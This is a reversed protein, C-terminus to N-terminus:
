YQGSNLMSATKGISRDHCEDAIMSALSDIENIVTMLREIQDGFQANLYPAAPAADREKVNQPTPGILAELSGTLQSKVNRASSNIEALAQIHNHLSM